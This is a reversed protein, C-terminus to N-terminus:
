VERNFIVNETKLIAVKTVLELNFLRINRIKRVDIKELIRLLSHESLKCDSFPKSHNIQKRYLQWCMGCKITMKRMQHM